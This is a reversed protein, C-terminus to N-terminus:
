LLRGAGGVPSPPEIIGELGAVHLAQADVRVCQAFGVGVVTRRLSREEEAIEGAAVLAALLKGAAGDKGTERVVDDSVLGGVREDVAHMGIEILRAVLVNPGEM